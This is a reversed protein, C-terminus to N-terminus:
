WATAAAIRKASRMRALTRPRFMGHRRGVGPRIGTQRSQRRKCVDYLAMRYCRQGRVVLTVRHKDGFNRRQPGFARSGGRGFVSARSPSRAPKAPTGRADDNEVGLARLQTGGAVPKGASSGARHRAILHQPPQPPTDTRTRSQM